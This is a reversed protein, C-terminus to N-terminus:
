ATAYAGRTRADRRGCRHRAGTSLARSSSGEDCQSLHWGARRREERGGQDVDVVEGDQADRRRRRQRDSCGIPQRPARHGPARHPGTSADRRPTERRIGDSASAAAYRV